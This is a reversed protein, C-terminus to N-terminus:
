PGHGVSRHCHVCRLGGADGAAGGHVLEAVLQAHCARCNDELIRANPAHIGIPEHFNGTTFALSHHYGNQGKAVLKGVLAHPVHCDVCRAVAHHSSRQLSEFQSRMIHCNVCARPESSFYSWGDAYGFTFVGLGTVLGLLGAFAVGISLHRADPM